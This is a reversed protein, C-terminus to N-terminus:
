KRELPKELSEYDQRTVPASPITQPHPSKPATTVAEDVSKGPEQYRGERWQAPRGISEDSTGKTDSM